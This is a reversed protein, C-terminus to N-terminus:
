DILVPLPRSVWGHTIASPSINRTSGNATVYKYEYRGNLLLSRKTISGSTEPYDGIKVRVKDGIDFILQDRPQVHKVVMSDYLSESFHENCLPCTETNKIRDEDIMTGPILGAVTRLRSAGHNNIRRYPDSQQTWGVYHRIPWPTKFGKSGKEAFLTIGFYDSSVSQVVQPTEYHLIYVHGPIQEIPLCHKEELRIIWDPKNNGYEDSRKYGRGTM